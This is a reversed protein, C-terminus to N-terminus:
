WWEVAGCEEPIPYWDDAESAQATGSGVLPVAIGAAVMMGLVHRRNFVMGRDAPQDPQDM